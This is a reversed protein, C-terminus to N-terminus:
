RDARDRLAANAKSGPDKKGGRQAGLKEKRSSEVKGRCVERKRCKMYRGRGQDSNLKPIMDIGIQQYAVHGGHLSTHYM